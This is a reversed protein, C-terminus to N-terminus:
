DNDAWFQRHNSLAEDNGELEKELLKRGYVVNLNKTYDNIYKKLIEENSINQFNEKEYEAIAALHDIGGRWGGVAENYKLIKEFLPNESIWTLFNRAQDGYYPLHSKIFSKAQQVNIKEYAEKLSLTM